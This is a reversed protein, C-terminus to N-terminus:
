ANLFRPPPNSHPMQIDDFVYDDPIPMEVAPPPPPPPHDDESDEKKYLNPKPIIPTCNPVKQMLQNAITFAVRTTYISVIASM